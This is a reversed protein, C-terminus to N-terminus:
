KEYEVSSNTKVPFNVSNAIFCLEHAKHHLSDALAADSDKAIVVRPNLTVEVFRGGGDATEIMKGAASDTYDVVVIKADSCLHLFWLLHCASLSAILMEEPNYRTKDGRFNPDSSGGIVPKGDAFIEHSRSYGTYTKTGEGNNGTWKLNIRYGHEKDM